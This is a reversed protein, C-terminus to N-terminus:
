EKRTSVFSAADWVILLLFREDEPIYHIVAEEPRGPFKKPDTFNLLVTDLHSLFDARTKIVEPYVRELLEPWESPAPTSWKRPPRASRDLTGPSLTARSQWALAAKMSAMKKVPAQSKMRKALDILARHLKDAEIFEPEDLYRLIVRRSFTRTTSGLGHAKRLYALTSEPWRENVSEPILGWDEYERLQKYNTNVSPFEGKPTGRGRRGERALHILEYGSFWDDL